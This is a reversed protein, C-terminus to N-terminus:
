VSFSRKPLLGRRFVMWCWMISGDIEAMSEQRAATSQWTSEELEGEELHDGLSVVSKQFSERKM